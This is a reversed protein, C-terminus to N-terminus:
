EESISIKHLKDAPQKALKIHLMGDQYTATVKETNIPVPMFLIREFRGCQIEALRYTANKDRPMEYRKGIIKVAKANIEIDLDEKKVGAIEALVVIEKPTEYIDMPPNWSCETCTFRPSMSRFMEEVNKKFEASLQDLDNGFRIKIYDM